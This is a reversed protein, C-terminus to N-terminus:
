AACPASEGAPRSVPRERWTVRRLFAQTLPGISLAYLVTGGGLTGGLLWGVAVVAVEICTRILRISRGTRRSLGTMLGDRPGPGLRAGVYTATAFANLAVGGLLLTLQWGFTHQAPLVLRVLDVVAAIIVINAVTGVGPRQRLPIWLLLAAMSALATVTGFSLGTHKMLGEHLVNWPDLGLGARTMMAMSVGYLILGGVLQPLRRAPAVSVRVPHLVPQAM